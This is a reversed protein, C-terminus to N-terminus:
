KKSITQVYNNTFISKIPTQPHPDIGIIEMTLKGYTGDAVM